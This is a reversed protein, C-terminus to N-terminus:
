IEHEKVETLMLHRRRSTDYVPIRSMLVGVTVDAALIFAGLILGTATDVRAIALALWGHALAAGYVLGVAVPVPIGVFVLRHSIHDRGGRLPNRRHILRTATVLTTDVIAVGLLTIPVLFTQYTPADFRLRIALWALLFGLFLSGADGMYITAPHFNQRLFGGACGALALALAAVLVQGNLAAIVFLSLASIAAVGASLGDMNDLLNFANTIGVIWLVTLLLNLAEIDLLTIGSGLAWVLLAAAIQAGLRVTVGLGRLDDVLGVLALGLAAGLTAALETLGSPPRLYAAASLIVVAFASTIAAGGLYPVAEAHAKHDGPHDFIRWARALRRALPTLGLSLAVAAVFVVPYLWPGVDM